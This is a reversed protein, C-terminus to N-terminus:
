PSVNEDIVLKLQFSPVPIYVVVSNVATLLRLLKRLLLIRLRDSKSRWQVICYVEHKTNENDLFKTNVSMCKKHSICLNHLLQKACYLWGNQTQFYIWSFQSNFCKQKQVMNICDSKDLSLHIKDIYYDIDSRMLCQLINYETM